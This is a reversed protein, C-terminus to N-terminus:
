EDCAHSQKTKTDAAHLADSPDLMCTAAPLTVVSDDVSASLKQLISVKWTYGGMTAGYWMSCVGGDGM